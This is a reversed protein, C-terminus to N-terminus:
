LTQVIKIICANTLWPTPMFRHAGNQPGNGPWNIGSFGTYVRLRECIKFRISNVAQDGSLDFQMRSTLTQAARDNHM